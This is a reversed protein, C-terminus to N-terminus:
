LVKAPQVAGTERAIRYVLNGEEINVIFLVGNYLERGDETKRKVRIDRGLVDLPGPMGKVPRAQCMVATGGDALKSLVDTQYGAVPFVSIHIRDYEDEIPRFGDGVLLSMNSPIGWYLEKIKREAYENTEPDAEYCDISSAGMSNIVSATYGSGTMIELVRCGPKPDLFILNGAVMHPSPIVVDKGPVAQISRFRYPSVNVDDMFRARDIKELADFVPHDALEKDYGYVADRMADVMAGNDKYTKEKSEDLGLPRLADAIAMAREDKGKFEVDM